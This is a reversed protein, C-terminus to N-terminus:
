HVSGVIQTAWQGIHNSSTVDQFPLWVPAFSPDQNASAKAPDFAVLWLQTVGGNPNGNADHPHVDRFGYDRNSAVTVWMVTGGKVKTTFPSWKPWSVTNRGAGNAIALEIPTGGTAPVVFSRATPDNYTDCHNANIDAANPDDIGTACTSRSFLVWKDDPSYSPHYDNEFNTGGPAVVLPTEAGFVPPTKTTDIAITYISSQLVSLSTKVQAGRAYILTKGDNSFSPYIAGDGAPIDVVATNTAASILVMKSPKPNGNCFGPAAPNIGEKCQPTTVYFKNDPSWTQTDSDGVPMPPTIVQKTAVDVVALQMPRGCDGRENVCIPALMKTGDNSLAHCGACNGSTFFPGVQGTVFDYRFIGAKNEPPTPRTNFYYLGGKLDEGAFRVALKGSTGIKGAAGAARVTITAADQGELTATISKWTDADPTSGCATDIATCKTVYHADINPGTIALDFLDTTAAPKWQFELAPLNPPVMVGDLPYAVAPALTTDEVANTFRAAAAADVGPGLITQKWIVHVKAAGSVAGIAAALTADGGRYTVTTATPGNAGLVSPQLSTWNM